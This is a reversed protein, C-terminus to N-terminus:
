ILIKASRRKDVGVNPVGANTTSGLIWHLPEDNRFLPLAGFAKPEAVLLIIYWFELGIRALM